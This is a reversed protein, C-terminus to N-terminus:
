KIIDNIHATFSLDSSMIIGLDKVAYSPQIQFGNSSYYENDYTFFPLNKLLVNNSFFSHQVLEFKGEHLEM